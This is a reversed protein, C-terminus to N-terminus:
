TQLGDDLGNKHEHLQLSVDFRAQLHFLEKTAHSTTAVTTHGQAMITLQGPVDRIV